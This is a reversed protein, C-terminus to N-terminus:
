KFLFCVEEGVEDKRQAIIVGGMHEYFSLTPNNKLCWLYFSEHHFLEKIYEMMKKGYGKKQYSKRLYLAQVEHKAYVDDPILSIFGIIEGNEEVVHWYKGYMSFQKEKKLINKEESMGDLIADRILGRYTEQWCHYHCTGIGKIDEKCCARIIM